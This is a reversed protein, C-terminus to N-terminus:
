GLNLLALYLSLNEKPEAQVKTEAQESSKFRHNTKPQMRSKSFVLSFEDLSTKYTKTSRLNPVLNLGAQRAALVSIIVKPFKETM